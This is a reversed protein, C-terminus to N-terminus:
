QVILISGLNGIIKKREEKNRQSNKCRKRDKLIGNNCQKLRLEDIVERRNEPSIYIDKKLYKKITRMQSQKRIM